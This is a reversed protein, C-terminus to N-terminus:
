RGIQDKHYDMQGAGQKQNANTDIESGYQTPQYCTRRLKIFHLAM